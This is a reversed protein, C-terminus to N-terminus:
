MKNPGCCFIAPKYKIDLFECRTKNGCWNDKSCDHPMCESDRCRNTHKEWTGSITEITDAGGVLCPAGGVMLAVGDIMWAAGVRYEAGGAWTPWLLFSTLAWLCALITDANQNINWLTLHEAEPMISQSTSTRQKHKKSMHTSTPTNAPRHTHTHTHTTIHSFSPVMHLLLLCATWHLGAWSWNYQLGEQQGTMRWHTLLGALLSLSLCISLFRSLSLSYRLPLSSGYFHQVKTTSIYVTLCFWMWNGFLNLADLLWM